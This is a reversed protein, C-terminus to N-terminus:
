HQNLSSYDTFLRVDRRSYCAKAPKLETGHLSLRIARKVRAHQFVDGPRWKTVHVEKVPISGYRLEM